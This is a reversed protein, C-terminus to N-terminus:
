QEWLSELAEHTGTLQLHNYRVKRNEGLKLIAGLPKEGGQIEVKKSLTDAKINNIRSIYKIKFHYKVLIEVQKVQRQNLKKTM